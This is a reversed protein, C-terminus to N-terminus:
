LTHLFLFLCNGPQARFESLVRTCACVVQLWYAISRLCHICEPWACMCVKRIRHSHRKNKNKELEINNTLTGPLLWNWYKKNMISRGKQEKWFMSSVDGSRLGLLVSLRFGIRISLPLFCATWGRNVQMKDAPWWWNSRLKDAPHPAGKKGPQQGTSRREKTRVTFGSLFLELTQGVNLNDLPFQMPTFIPGVLAKVMRDSCDSLACFAVSIEWAYATLSNSQLKSSKRILHVVVSQKKNACHRRLKIKRGRPRPVLFNSLYAEYKSLEAMKKRKAWAQLANKSHSASTQCAGFVLAVQVRYIKFLNIVNNSAAANNCSAIEFALFFAIPCGTNLYLSCDHVTNLTTRSFHWLM